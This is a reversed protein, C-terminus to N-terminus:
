NRLQLKFKNKNNVSINELQASLQLFKHILISFTHSQSHNEWWGWPCEPFVSGLECKIYILCKGVECVAWLGGSLDLALFVVVFWIDAMTFCLLVCMHQVCVTQKVATQHQFYPNNSTIFCWLGHQWIQCVFSANRMLDTLIRVRIIEILSILLPLNIPIYGLNRYTCVVLIEWGVQFLRELCIECCQGCLLQFTNIESSRM